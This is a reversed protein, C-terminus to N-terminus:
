LVDLIMNNFASNEDFAIPSKAIYPIFNFRLTDGLSAFNGSLFVNGEEALNFTFPNGADTLLVGRFQVDTAPVPLNFAIQNNVSADPPTVAQIGISIPLILNGNVVQIENDIIRFSPSIHEDPISIIEPPINTGQIIFNPHYGM